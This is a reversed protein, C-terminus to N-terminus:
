TPGSLWRTSRTRRGGVTRLVVHELWYDLWDALKWAQNPVPIGHRDREQAERMREIAQQRTRGYVTIRKHTGATTWVYFRGM